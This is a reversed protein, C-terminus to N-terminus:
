LELVEICSIWHFKDSVLNSKAAPQYESGLSFDRGAETLVWMDAARQEIYALQKMARANVSQQLNWTAIKPM